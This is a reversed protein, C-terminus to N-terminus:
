TFRESGPEPLRAALEVDPGRFAVYDVRLGTLRFTVDLPTGESAWQGFLDTIAWVPAEGHLPFPIVVSDNELEIRSVGDQNVVHVTAQDCDVRVSIMGLEQVAELVRGSPIHMEYWRSIDARQGKVSGYRYRILWRLSWAGFLMVPVALTAAAFRGGLLDSIVRLVAVAGAGTGVAALYPRAAPRYQWMVAAAVAILSLVATTTM